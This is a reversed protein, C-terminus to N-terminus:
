KLKQEYLKGFIYFRRIKNVIDDSVCDESFNYKQVQGDYTYIEVCPQRSSLMDLWVLLAQYQEYTPQRESLVMYWKNTDCRIAGLDYMTQSGQTQRYEYKSLGKDILFKEVDSHHTYNKMNLFKGDPMIYSIGMTPVDLVGFESKIVNLLEQENEFEESYLRM